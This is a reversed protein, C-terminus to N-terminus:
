REVILENNEIRMKEAFDSLLYYSVYGQTGLPLEIGWPCQSSVSILTTEIEQPKEFRNYTLRIEDGAKYREYDM